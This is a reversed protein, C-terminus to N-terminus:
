CVYVHHYKLDKPAQAWLFFYSHSAIETINSQLLVSISLKVIIFPEKSTKTEAVQRILWKEYVM